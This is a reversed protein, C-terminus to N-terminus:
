AQKAGTFLARGADQGFNKPIVIAATAKGKRVAEKAGDITSPKVDLNKDGALSSVLGRSIDSGDEDIVLVALKSTAADGGQGGFM